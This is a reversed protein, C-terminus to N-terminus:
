NADPSWSGSVYANLGVSNHNMCKFKYYYGRKASQWNIIATRKNEMIGTTYDGRQVGDSNQLMGDIAYSGTGQGDITGLNIITAGGTASKLASPMYNIGKYAPLKFNTLTKIDRAYTAVPTSLLICTGLFMVIKKNIRIM